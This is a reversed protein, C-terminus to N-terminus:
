GNLILNYIEEGRIAHVEQYWHSLHSKTKGDTYKLEDAAGEWDPDAQNIWANMHHFSLITGKGMNFMIDCLAEQRNESFTDFAPWVKHCDALKWTIQIDLLQNVMDDTIYGNIQEFAAIETPLPTADINWGIGITWYGLSDKYRKNRKGEEVRLMLSEKLRDM